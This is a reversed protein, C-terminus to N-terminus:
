TSDLFAKPNEIAEWASLTSAAVEGLMGTAGTVVRLPELM